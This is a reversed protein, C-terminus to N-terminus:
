QVNPDTPFLLNLKWRKWKAGTYVKSLDNTNVVCWGKRLMILNPCFPRDATWHVTVLLGYMLRTRARALDVHISTHGSTFSAPINWFAVWAAMVKERTSIEAETHTSLLTKRGRGASLLSLYTYCAGRNVVSRNFLWNQPATATLLVALTCRGSVRSFDRSIKKGLRFAVLQCSQLTRGTCTLQSAICACFAHPPSSPSYYFFNRVLKLVFLSRVTLTSLLPV